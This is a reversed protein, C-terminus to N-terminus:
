SASRAGTARRREASFPARREASRRSLRNFANAALDDGADLAALVVGPPDRSPGPGPEYEAVMRVGPRQGSRSLGHGRDGDVVHPAEDAIAENAVPQGHADRAVDRGGLQGSSQVVYETREGTEPVVVSM